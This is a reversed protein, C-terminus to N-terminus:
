FGFKALKERLFGVAMSIDAVPDDGVEREITLFGDFGTNRLAPLYVDFDVDGQGLPLEIFKEGMEIMQAHKKADEDLQLANANIKIAEDVKKQLMIGDKAHTHVVYKGLYKLAEEPRDDVCMVLNAPDFNVRVGEAGLSDLFDALLWGKEPGTEVAFSAGVSDGYLALERCAARMIEKKECEEEPVTGIHTTVIGCGLELSLDLIRKSKDILWKNQEPDSFGTGFDGCLASFVLGNSKVIDLTERIKEKTMDEAALESDTTAMAQIGEIGLEAAKEVGGRFGLRFSGVMAGIRM